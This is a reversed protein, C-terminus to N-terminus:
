DLLVWAFVACLGACTLAGSWLWIGGQGGLHWLLVIAALLGFLSPLPVLLDILKVLPLASTGGFRVRAVSLFIFWPLQVMAAYAPLRPSLSALDMAHRIPHLIPQHSSSNQYARVIAIVLIRDFCTPPLRGIRKQHVAGGESRLLHSRESPNSCPQRLGGAM